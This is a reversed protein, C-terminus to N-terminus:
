TAELVYLQELRFLVFLYIHEMEGSGSDYFIM